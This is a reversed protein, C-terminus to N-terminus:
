CLAAPCAPAISLRCILRDEIEFLELISKSFFGRRVLLRGVQSISTAVNAYLRQFQHRGVAIGHDAAHDILVTEDAPAVIWGAIVIADLKPHQLRNSAVGCLFDGTKNAIRWIEFLQPAGLLLQDQKQAAVEILPDSIGFPSQLVPQAGPQPIIRCDYKGPVSRFHEERVKRPM